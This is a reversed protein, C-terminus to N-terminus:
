KKCIVNVHFLSLHSFNFVGIYSLEHTIPSKECEYMITYSYKPKNGFIYFIEFFGLILKFPYSFMNKSLNIEQMHSKCRFNSMKFENFM